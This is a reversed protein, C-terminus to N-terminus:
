LRGSFDFGFNRDHNILGESTDRHLDLGPEFASGCHKWVAIELYPLLPKEVKLLERDVQSTM